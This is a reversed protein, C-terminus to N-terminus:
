YSKQGGNKGLSGQFDSYFHLPYNWKFVKKKFQIEFKM